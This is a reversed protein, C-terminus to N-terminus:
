RIANKWDAASGANDPFAENLVDWSYIKGQFYTVVDSIYAKMAKLATEKTENAMNQQWLPIQNHWLLAHGVVKIDAAIAADVMNGATTFGSQNRLHTNTAANYGSSLSVPKMNNEHTLANFHRTLRTNSISSGSIDGPNFINGVMFYRGFQDKLPPLALIDVRAAITTNVTVTDQFNGNVTTVTIVATGTAAAPDTEAGGSGFGVATVTGDPSVSVVAPASSEWTVEAGSSEPPTVTYALKEKEGVTLLLTKKELAIGTVKSGGEDAAPCASVLAVFVLGAALLVTVFLNKREM